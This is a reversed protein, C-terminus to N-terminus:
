DDDELDRFLLKAEKMAEDLDAFWEPDDTYILSTLEEITDFEGIKVSPRARWGSGPDYATKASFKESLCISYGGENDACWAFLTYNKMQLGEMYM